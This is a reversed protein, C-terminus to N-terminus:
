QEDEKDLIRQIFNNFLLDDKDEDALTEAKSRDNDKPQYLEVTGSYHVNKPNSPRAPTSPRTNNSPRSAWGSLKGKLRSFDIPSIDEKTM